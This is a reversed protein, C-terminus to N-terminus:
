LKTPKGVGKKGLPGRREPKGAPLRLAEQDAKEDRSDDLHFMQATHIPPGRATPDATAPKDQTALAFSSAIASLFSYRQVLGGWCRTAMSFVFVSYISNVTM